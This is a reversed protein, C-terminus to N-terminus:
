ETMTYIRPKVGKQADHLTNANENYKKDKQKMDKLNQSCGANVVYNYGVSTVLGGTLLYWMYEAVIDKLRIFGYLQQKLDGNDAVGSKFLSSMNTWFRDFNSTTIENILLSKDSYIHELAEVMVKDTASPELKAKFIKDLLDSVGMLRAVGYGFTNSFPALWGPFIMLVLNLIGFIIVWPILTVLLATNWQRSGCM